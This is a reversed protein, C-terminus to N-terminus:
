APHTNILAIVAHEPRFPAHSTLEDANMHVDIEGNTVAATLVAVATEQVRTRCTGSTLIRESEAGLQTPIKPRRKNFHRSRPHRSKERWTPLETTLQSRITQTHRHGNKNTRPEKGARHGSM